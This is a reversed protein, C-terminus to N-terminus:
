AVAGVSDTFWSLGLDFDKRDINLPPSFIVTGRKESVILQLRRKDLEGQFAKWTKGDASFDVAALMGLGRPNSVTKPYKDAVENLKELLIRGLEEARAYLKEEAYIDLAAIAAACGLPHGYNTLGAWFVDEEFRSAVREHVLVAGLPAYGATLAKACTIIDPTVGFHEVAFGRGTRGFGTLVEDAVLLTGHRDCAKRVRPFFDPAPVYCGNAGAVPELFVAAVSKPGELELVQEIHAADDLVHIVGPVGPELPFRRYDGTLTLAGMTAGHYSRYRSVFKHRGTVMRAIKMANEVSESGGLTYMVKSFGKPAMELLRKALETKQPFVASAPALCLREAQEKIAKIMRPHGHGLSAQFSLSSFDLWEKGDPTTLRAGKGGSIEMARANKQATWTFFFPHGSM